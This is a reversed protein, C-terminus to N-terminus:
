SVALVGRLPSYYDPDTLSRAYIVDPRRSQRDVGSRSSAKADLPLGFIATARRIPCASGFRCIASRSPPPFRGPPQEGWGPAVTPTRLDARSGQGSVACGDHGKTGTWAGDRMATVMRGGVGTNAVNRAAADAAPRQHSRLRALAPPGLKPMSGAVSFRADLGAVARAAAGRRARRPGGAVAWVADATRWRARPRLKGLAFALRM